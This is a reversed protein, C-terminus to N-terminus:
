FVSTTGIKDYWAGYQVSNMKRLPLTYTSFDQEYGAYAEWSDGALTEMRKSFDYRWDGEWLGNEDRGPFNIISVEDLCGIINLQQAILQAAPERIVKVLDANSIVIDKEKGSHKREPHEIEDQVNELRLNERDRDTAKDGKNYLANEQM